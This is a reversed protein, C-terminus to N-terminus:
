QNEAREKIDKATIVIDGDSCKIIITSDEDPECDVYSFGVSSRDTHVEGGGIFWPLVNRPVYEHVNSGPEREKGDHLFLGGGDKMRIELDYTSCNSKEDYYCSYSLELEDKSVGLGWWCSYMIGGFIVAMVVFVTVAIKLAKKNLKKLYRINKKTEEAPIGPTQSTMDEYVKKCEGCQELHKEVEDVTEKSAMGDAYVPLLDRIIECKM